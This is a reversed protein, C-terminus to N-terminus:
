SISATTSGPSCRRPRCCGRERRRWSSRSRCVTSGGASRSVAAGPASFEARVAHARELFLRAGEHEPLPPILFEQEAALHLPARSTALV